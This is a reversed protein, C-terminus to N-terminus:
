KPPGQSVNARILWKLNSQRRVQFTFDVDLHRHTQPVKNVIAFFRNDSLAKFLCSPNLILGFKSKNPFLLVLQFQM